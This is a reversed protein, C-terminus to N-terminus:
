RSIAARGCVEEWPANVHFDVFEAIGLAFAEQELAAVRAHDGQNRCGGILKLRAKLVACGTVLVAPRTLAPTIMNGHDRWTHRSMM